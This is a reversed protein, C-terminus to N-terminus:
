WLGPFKTYHRRSLSEEYQEQSQNSINRSSVVVQNDALISRHLRSSMWFKRYFRDFPRILHFEWTSHLKRIITGAIQNYQEAYVSEAETKETTDIRHFQHMTDTKAIILAEKKSLKKGVVPVTLATTDPMLVSISSLTESKTSPLKKPVVM